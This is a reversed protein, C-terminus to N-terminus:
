KLGGKVEDKIEAYTARLDQPIKEWAAQLEKITKCERLGAEIELNILKPKAEKQIASAVEDASAFEQGGWGAAALARGIAGTECNMLASTKNIQSSGRTEECHGTSIVKGDASCITARMVVFKDNSEIIDTSIEWDPHTERFKQVRLAVTQYIRGHILVEGDKPKM